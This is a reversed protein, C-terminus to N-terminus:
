IGLWHILKLWTVLGVIVWLVVAVGISLLIDKRTPPWGQVIGPEIIAVPVFIIFIWFTKWVIEASMPSYVYAGIFMLSAVMYIFHIWASDPLDYFWIKQDGKSRHRDPYMFGPQKECMFWWARHCQWTIMLALFSFAVWLWVPVQVRHNWIGYAYPLLILDGVVVGGHFVFPLKIPKGGRQGPWFTKETWSFIGELIVILAMAWAAIWSFEM